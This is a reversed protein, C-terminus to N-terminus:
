PLVLERLMVKNFFKKFMQQKQIYQTSKSELLPRLKDTINHPATSDGMELFKCAVIGCTFGLETEAINFIEYDSAKHVSSFFIKNKEENLVNQFLSLKRQFSDVELKRGKKFDLFYIDSM